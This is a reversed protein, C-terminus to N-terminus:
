EEIGGNLFATKVDMQHLISGMVLSLSIISKISTYRAVLSFTDEYYVGEKQSFGRVVFRLKYKEINGNTAHMIKYIWKSTVMSKEEPRPVIEWVDNKMIFHCEEMMAEKWVQQSRMVLLNVILAM